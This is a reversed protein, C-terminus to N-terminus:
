LNAIADFAVGAAERVPTQALMEKRTDMQLAAKLDRWVSVNVLTNTVPAVGAQCFLLGELRRIAPVLVKESERILREVDAYRGVAFRGKSIRDVANKM